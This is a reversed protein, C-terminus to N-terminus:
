CTGNCTTMMLLSLTSHGGSIRGPPYNAYLLWVKFSHHCGMGAARRCVTSIKGQSDLAKREKWGQSQSEKSNHKFM